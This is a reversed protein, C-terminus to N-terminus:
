IGSAMEATNQCTLKRWIVWKHLAGRSAEGGPVIELGVFRGKGIGGFIGHCFSRADKFLRMAKV